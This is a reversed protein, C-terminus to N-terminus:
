TPPMKLVQKLQNALRRDNKCYCKVESRASSSVNKSDKKPTTSIEIFSPNCKTLLSSIDSNLSSVELPKKGNRDNLM